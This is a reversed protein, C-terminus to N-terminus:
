KQWDSVGYKALIRQFSGNQRMKQIGDTLNQLYIKSKGPVTAPPFTVYVNNSSGLQGAERIQQLVGIRKATNKVVLEDDAIVDIKHAVLKRLSKEMPNSGSIWDVRIKKSAAPENLEGWDYGFALGISMNQLSNPNKYNWKSTTLTFFHNTSLGFILKKDFQYKRPEAESSYIGLIMDVKGSDLAELCQQFPWLRYKVTHGSLKMAETVLEPIYGPHTGEAQTYPEWADAVATLTDARANASLCFSAIYSIGAIQLTIKSVLTKLLM